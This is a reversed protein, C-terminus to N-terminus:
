DLEYKATYEILLTSGDRKLAAEYEPVVEERNYLCRVIVTSLMSRIAYSYDGVHQAQPDLPKDTAIATRVIVKPKYGGHSYIPLKDLHLCLQNLALILFNIRPFMCVPLYGGLALGTCFGMQLDEAVPFELRKEMPVDRLTTHLATGEAVTAQGVFVANDREAILAMARCLEDFYTM